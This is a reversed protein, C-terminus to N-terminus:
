NLTLEDVLGEGARGVLEPGGIVCMTKIMMCKAKMTRLVAM